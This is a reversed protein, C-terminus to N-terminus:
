ITPMPLGSSFYLCMVNVGWLPPSKPMFVKGEGIGVQNSSECHIGNHSLRNLIVVVPNRQERSLPSFTSYSTILKQVYCLNMAM